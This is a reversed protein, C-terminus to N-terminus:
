KVYKISDCVRQRRGLVRESQTYQWVNEQRKIIWERFTVAWEEQAMAVCLGQLAKENNEFPCEM